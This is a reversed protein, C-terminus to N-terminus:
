EKEGLIRDALGLEVSQTATLFTDHGLMRQVRSLTYLPQKEKIKGLYMKDMWSDIRKAEAAHKSITLNEASISWSGYHIMQTSMESMVRDDAAQLIVSGMSSASGFVKITIHSEANKIADYIALGHGIDGGINNMVITIPDQSLNDLILLNKIMRESMLYDTGTESDGNQGESGMYITRSPVYLKYNHFRDVEDRDMKKSM